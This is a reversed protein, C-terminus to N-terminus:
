AYDKEKNSLARFLSYWQCAERRFDDAWYDDDWEFKAYTADQMMEVARKLAFKPSIEQYDKDM